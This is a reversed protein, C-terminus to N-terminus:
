DTGGAKRYAQRAAVVAATAKKRQEIYGAQAVEKEVDLAEQRKRLDAEERKRAEDIKRVAGEAQDLKSRDAPPKAKKAPRRPPRKTHIEDAWKKPADPIKPLGRPNLEFPHNTGVVRKLPVDPHQLAAEVAQADETLRAQGGAFLNQRTGWAKLAATQSAAAVVTDYFGIQATFVKLRRGSTKPM